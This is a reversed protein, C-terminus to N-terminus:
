HYIIHLIIVSLNLKTERCIKHALYHGFSILATERRTSRGGIKRKLVTVWPNIGAEEEEETQPV